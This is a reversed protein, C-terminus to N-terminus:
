LQINLFYIHWNSYVNEQSSVISMEKSISLSIQLFTLTGHLSDPRVVEIVKVSSFLIASKAIDEMQFM